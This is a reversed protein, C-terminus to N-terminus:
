RMGLFANIQKVLRQCDEVNFQGFHKMLPLVEGSRLALDVRHEQAGAVDANEDVRSFLQAQKVEAMAVSTRRRGDDVLIVSRQRDLTVRLRRLPAFTFVALVAVVAAGFVFPRLDSMDEILLEAAGVLAFLALLGLVPWREGVLDIVTRGQADRTETLGEEM